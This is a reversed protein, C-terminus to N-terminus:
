GKYAENLQAKLRRVDDPKEEAINNTEWPDQDLDYLRNQEGDAVILKYRGDNIMQWGTLASVQYERNETKEGSLLASVQYERHGTKEGRLIPVLSLSDEAEPMELGALDMITNTLDQLEVLSDCVAGREIGPGWMVFPIDVSAREPQSKNFKLHDGLTEGHDSSYIIITNELEGRKRVEDILLGCNRDINEVMAAYNQRVKVIRDRNEEGWSVPLPFSVDKWPEQMRPTVDWPDHPGTFNVQLFWPQDKPFNRILGVGNQTLWNDCYAEDPLTTVHSALKDERRKGMDELHQGVLGTEHLYKFYPDQPEHAGSRVGDWKGANDIGDTFGLTELDDIWGDLGWFLTPKHLDFKGVAGVRYGDEKLVSYFTRLDLPYDEDNSPVRCRDYRLGAALCARAPACLPSPTIARTFTVGEDMLRRINQMRLPLEEMGKQKLSQETYPMWDGRHQDPFLFLFNPQAM